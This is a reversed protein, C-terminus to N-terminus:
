CPPVRKLENMAHRTFLGSLTAAAAIGFLNQQSDVAAQSGSGTLGAQLVLLFTIAFAAGVAAALLVDVGSMTGTQCARETAKVQLDSTM